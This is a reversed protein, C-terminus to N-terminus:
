FMLNREVMMIFSWAYMLHLVMVMCGLKALNNLVETQWVDQIWTKMVFTRLGLKRGKPRKELELLVKEPLHTGFRNFVSLNENGVLEQRQKSKDNWDKRAQNIKNQLEANALEENKRLQEQTKMYKAKEIREKKVKSFQFHCEKWSYCIDTNIDEAVKKWLTKTMKPHKNLTSKVELLLRKTDAVSWIRAFNKEPDNKDSSQSNLSKLSKKRKLNSNNISTSNSSTTSRFSATRNLSNTSNNNNSDNDIDSNGDSNGASENLSFISAKSSETNLSSSRQRRLSQSFITDEEPQNQIM